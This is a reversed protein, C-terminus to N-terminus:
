HKSENQKVEDLVKCREPAITTSRELTGFGFLLLAFACMLGQSINRCIM